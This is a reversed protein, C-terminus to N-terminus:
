NHNINSIPRYIKQFMGIYWIKVLLNQVSVGLRSKEKKNTYKKEKFIEIYNILFSKPSKFYVRKIFFFM